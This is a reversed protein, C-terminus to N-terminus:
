SAKATVVIAISLTAIIIAMILNLTWLQLALTAVIAVLRYGRKTYVNQIAQRAKAIAQRAKAKTMENAGTYDNTSAQRTAVSRIICM